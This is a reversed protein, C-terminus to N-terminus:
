AGHKSVKTLFVCTGPSVPFAALCVTISCYSKKEEEEENGGGGKKKQPPPPPVPFDTSLELEQESARSSFRTRSEHCYVRTGCTFCGVRM